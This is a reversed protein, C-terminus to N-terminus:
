VPSSRPSVPSCPVPRRAHRSRRPPAKRPPQRRRDSGRKPMMTTPSLPSPPPPPLTHLTQPCLRMQPLWLWRRGRSMREGKREDAQMAVDTLPCGADLFELVLRWEIQPPNDVIKLMAETKAAIAPMEPVRAYAGGTLTGPLVGWAVGVDVPLRVAMGAALACTASMVLLWSIGGSVDAIQMRHLLWGMVEVPLLGDPADALKYTVYPPM